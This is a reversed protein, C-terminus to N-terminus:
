DEPLRGGLEFIKERAQELKEGQNEDPTTDTKLAMYAEIYHGLAAKKNGKALAVKAKQVLQDFQIEDRESRLEAIAYQIPALDELDDTIKNLREIAKAYGGLKGSPTAADKAKERAFHIQDRIFQNVILERQQELMELAKEPSPDLTNIGKEAYPILASVSNMAVKTRSLKTEVKKSNSIIKTSELIIRCHNNIQPLHTNACPQCLGDKTLSVGFFGGRKGCLLCNAM